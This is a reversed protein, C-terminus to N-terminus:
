QTRGSRNEAFVSDDRKKSVVCEGFYTIKKTYDHPFYKIIDNLFEGDGQVRQNSLIHNGTTEYPFCRKRKWQKEKGQEELLVTILYQEKDSIM